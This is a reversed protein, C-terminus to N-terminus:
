SGMKHMKEARVGTLHFLLVFMIKEIANMKRM